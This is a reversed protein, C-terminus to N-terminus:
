LYPKRPIQVGMIAAAQKIQPALQDSMSKAHNAMEEMEVRSLKGHAARARQDRADTQDIYAMIDDYEARLQGALAPDKPALNPEIANYTLQLSGMIGRMDKVRSESIYATPHKGYLTERLDNFYSNFTPTMWVLAGICEDLRINWAKCDALFSDGAEQSKKAAALLVDALPLYEIGHVAQSAAPSLKRVFAAKGGYLCPEIVYHFM